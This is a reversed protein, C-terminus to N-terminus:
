EPQEGVADAMAGAVAEKSGLGNRDVVPTCGCGIAGANPWRRLNLM